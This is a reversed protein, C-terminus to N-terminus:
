EDNCPWQYGARIDGEITLRGAGSSESLFGLHTWRHRNFCPEKHHNAMRAALDETQGVYITSYSGDLEKRLIIYVGAVSAWPSRKPYVSFPYQRRSNSGTLKVTDIAATTM